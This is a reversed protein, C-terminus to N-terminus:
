ECVTVSRTFIHADTYSNAEDRNGRIKQIKEYDEAGDDSYPIRAASGCGVAPPLSTVVLKKGREREAVVFQQGTVTEESQSYARPALGHDVPPPITIKRPRFPSRGLTPIPEVDNRNPM